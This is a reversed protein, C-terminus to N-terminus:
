DRKTQEERGGEELTQKKKNEDGREETEFETRKKSKNTRHLVESV